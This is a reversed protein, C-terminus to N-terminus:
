NPGDKNVLLTLFTFLAEKKTENSICLLHSQTTSLLHPIKLLWLKLFTIVLLLFSTPPNLKIGIRSKMMHLPVVLLHKM